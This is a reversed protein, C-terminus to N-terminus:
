PRRRITDPLKHWPLDGPDIPFAGRAKATLIDERENEVLPVFDARFHNSSKVVIIKMEEPHVGVFRFLERDQAGIKGSAVVVQVGEIEVCASPGLEAVFGTMKPGKYTVWGDSVAKVTFEGQVPPDCPGDWLQSPWGLSAQLRAGVGAQVAQAAFDPDNLVGVTVRGPFKEGARAKLLAHIMGTTSGTGGGGPNDQTDAIVIAKSSEAARHMAKAVADDASDIKLRWQTPEGALAELEAVAQQAESGVSWIMPACEAFDASPFGMCFSSLTGHEADIEVLRDYIAKPAGFTTNQSSAPILFPLRAYRVTERRGLELRRHLLEAALEGTEVYDIHPYTRYAVLGDALELMQHTVNGHLDLSVVIPVNEGVIARIRALLEGECDDVHEAMGAGHLDLYIADFTKTEVDRCIESCIREFADSTVRNSPTAACWLSPVPEWGKQRAYRLFGMGPVAVKELMELMPAGSVAAPHSEGREFASWAAVEPAFTNTEHKFGAILVKM